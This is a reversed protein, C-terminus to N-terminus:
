EIFLNSPAKVFYIGKRGNPYKKTVISELVQKKNTILIVGPYNKNINLNQKTIKIDQTFLQDTLRLMYDNEWRMQTPYGIVVLYLSEVGLNIRTYKDYWTYKVVYLEEQTLSDLDTKGGVIKEIPVVPLSELNLKYIGDNLESDTKLYLTVEWNFKSNTPVIQAVKFYYLHLDKLEDMKYQINDRKKGIAFENIGKYRFSLKNLNEM